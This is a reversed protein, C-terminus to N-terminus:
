ADKNQWEAIAPVEEVRKLYALVEPYQDLTDAPVFDAVGRRFYDLQPYLHCDAITPKEGAIFGGTTALQEKIYGM